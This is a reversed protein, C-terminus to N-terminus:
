QAAGTVEPVCAYGDTVQDQLRPYRSPPPAVGDRVWKEMAVILARMPVEYNFPNDPTEGNGPVSPFKGINHPGAAFYDQAFRDNVASFGAYLHYNLTDWGVEKGILYNIVLALATCAIYVPLRYLAAGRGRACIATEGPLPRGQADGVLSM